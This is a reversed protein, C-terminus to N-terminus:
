NVSKEWLPQKKRKLHLEGSIKTQTKNDNGSRPKAPV